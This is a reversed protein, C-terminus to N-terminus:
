GLVFGLTKAIAPPRLSLAAIVAALAASLLGLEIGGSTWGVAASAAARGASTGHLTQALYGAHDTFAGTAASVAHTFPPVVGAALGIVVLLAVAAIMSAPTRQLPETEREEDKGTSEPGDPLDERHGVGFYVGLGARLVAGATTASVLVFLAVAWPYGGAKAAEETVSKGLATGFPPLGALGLGCLLFLAGIPRTGRGHLEVEDVSDYRNLLLGVMLFLASKVGAHGVVYIAVGALADSSLMAFGFLFLGIHAITSYALLRKLHRQMTCMVAGVIATLTGIVVFVRRVDAAPFVPSFVTWYVRAVGYVGLEVMIGSFMVCVPTPAVAHADALWFHLPVAAAKVLLGTLVLVFGAVLLASPGSNGLSRSIQALGLQGTHAYLLGIGFLSLYAGASNIIGFNLGGEVSEAAEIKYGTLAYAAAGMLEFFVFLDFLDGTLAFGTLGSLFLLMLGQFHAEASEFYRWSYLLAVSMLVASLLVAGAGLRDVVLVVGVSLGHRPQWGGSWTVMRGDGTSRILLAALAAVALSCGISILDAIRRPLYHGAALLLCAVLIPVVIALPALATAAM